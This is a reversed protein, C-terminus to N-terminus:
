KKSICKKNNIKWIYFIEEYKKNSIEYTFTVKNKNKDKIKFDKSNKMFFIIEKDCMYSLSEKYYKQNLSFIFSNEIQSLKLYENFFMVIWLCIISIILKFIDKAYKLYLSLLYDLM